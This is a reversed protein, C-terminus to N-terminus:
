KYRCLNLFRHARLNCFQWFGLGPFHPMTLVLIALWLLLQLHNRFRFVNAFAGLVSQWSSAFSVNANDEFEVHIKTPLQNNLMCCRGHEALKHHMSPPLTSTQIFLMWCWGMSLWVWKQCALLHWFTNTGWILWFLNSMKCIWVGGWHGSLNKPM